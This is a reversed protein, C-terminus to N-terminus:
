DQALFNIVLSIDRDKYREFNVHDVITSHEISVAENNYRISTAHHMFTLAYNQESDVGVLVHTPFM